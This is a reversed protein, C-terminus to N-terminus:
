YRGRRWRLHRAIQNGPCENSEHGAFENHGRVTLAKLPPVGRKPVGKEFLEKLTRRQMWTLRHARGDQLFVFAVSGTNHGAVAAPVASVPRGEYLRGRGDIGFHYGIDVWHRDNQHYRQWSRWTEAAAKFTWRPGGVPGGHHISAVKPWGNPSYRGNVPALGIRDRSFVRM